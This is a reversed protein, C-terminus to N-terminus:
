FDGSPKSEMRMFSGNLRNFVVNSFSSLLSCAVRIPVTTDFGVDNRLDVATQWCGAEVVRPGWARARPRM